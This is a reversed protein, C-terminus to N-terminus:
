LTETHVPSPKAAPTEVPADKKVSVEFGVKKLVEDTVWIPAEQGVALGIADSPRADLSWVRGNQKLRIQGLFVGSQFDDILVSEM